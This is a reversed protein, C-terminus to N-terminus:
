HEPRVFNKCYLEKEDGDSGPVLKVTPSYGRNIALPMGGALDETLIFRLTTDGNFCIKPPLHVMHSTTNEVGKFATELIFQDEGFEVSYDLTVDGNTGGEWSVNFEQGGKLESPWLGKTFRPGIYDSQRTELPSATVFAASLTGVLALLSAPQVM